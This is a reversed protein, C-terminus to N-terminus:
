SESFLHLVEARQKLLLTLFFVRHAEVDCRIYDSRERLLGARTPFAATQNENVAGLKM